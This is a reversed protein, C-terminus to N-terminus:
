GYNSVSASPPTFTSRTRIVAEHYQKVDWPDQGEPKKVEDAM